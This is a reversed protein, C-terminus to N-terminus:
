RKMGVISSGGSLRPREKDYMNCKKQPRYYEIMVCRPLSRCREACVEYSAGYKIDFGPGEVWVGAFKEITASAAAPQAPATSKEQASTAAISTLLMATALALSPVTTMLTM